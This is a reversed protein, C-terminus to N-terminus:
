VCWRELIKDKTLRFFAPTEYEYTRELADRVLRSNKLNCFSEINRFCKMYFANDVVEHTPGHEPYDDYGVLKVNVNNLDIDIKIQEYGRESLFPTITFIYPRLNSLAMGCAVGIMSQECLGLNIFRGPFEERFKDFLGFGIDGVLLYITKDKRAYETIFKAFERRM